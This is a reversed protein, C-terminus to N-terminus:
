VLYKHLKNAAESVLAEVVVSVIFVCYFTQEFIRWKKQVAVLM